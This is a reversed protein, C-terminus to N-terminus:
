TTPGVRSTRIVAKAVPLASMTKGRKISRLWPSRRWLRRALARVADVAAADGALLRIGLLSTITVLDRGALPAITRESHTAPSLKLGADWLPYWISAAMEAVEAPPVGKVPQILLVDIDSGPALWGLAYGGTAALAWGEPLRAGLATFWGDMQDCLRRALTRGSLDPRALLEARAERIAEASLAATM